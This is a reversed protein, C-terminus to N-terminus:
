LTLVKEEISGEILRDSIEQKVDDQNVISYVLVNTDLFIVIPRMLSPM